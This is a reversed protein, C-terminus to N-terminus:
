IPRMLPEDAISSSAVVSKKDLWILLPPLLFFDLLLAFGVTMVTFIGMQANMLFDSQIMSGFGFVFITSTAIVATGVTSFAFKVSEEPNLNLQRRARLYKSVFHVTDDVVIGLTMTAITAAAVGVVGDLISWLGFAMTIPLVNPFISVFGYKASRFVISLCLTIVLFSISTGILLGKINSNMLYTYMLSASAAEAHMEPPTNEVLWQEHREKARQMEFTSLDDFTVTVKTASRKVNIQDNLDLGLPLSM